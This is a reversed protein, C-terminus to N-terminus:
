IVSLGGFVGGLYLLQARRQTARRFYGDARDLASKLYEIRACEGPAGDVLTAANRDLEKFLGSIVGYLMRLCLARDRGAIFTLDVQRYLAYAPFLPEAAEQQLQVDPAASVELRERGRDDVLAVAVAIWSGYYRELVDNQAEVARVLLATRQAQPGSGVGIADELTVTRHVRRESTPEALTAEFLPQMEVRADEKRSPAAIM